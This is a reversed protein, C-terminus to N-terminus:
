ELKNPFYVGDLWDQIGSKYYKSFRVGSAGGPLATEVLGKGMEFVARWSPSFTVQRGKSRYLAGQLITAGNGPQEYVHDFGMFAPLAGDFFVNKM